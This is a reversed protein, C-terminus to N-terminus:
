LSREEAERMVARALPHESFKEASAAITLLEPECVGDLAIKRVLRLQRFTLNRDQRFCVSYRKVGPDHGGAM